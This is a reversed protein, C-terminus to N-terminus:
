LEIVAGEKTILLTIANLGGSIQLTSLQTTGEPRHFVIEGFPSITVNKPLPIVEDFGTQRQAFSSGAFLIVEQGSQVIGWESDARGSLAYTSARVLSARIIQSAIVTQRELFFQMGFLATSGGVILTIAVVIVIELFTFGRM